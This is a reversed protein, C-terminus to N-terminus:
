IRASIRPFGGPAAVVKRSGGNMGNVAGGRAMADQAPNVWRGFFAPPSQPSVNGDIRMRRNVDSVPAKAHARGSANNVAETGSHMQTADASITRGVPSPPGDSLALRAMRLPTEATATADSTCSSCCNTRIGKAKEKLVVSTTVLNLAWNPLRGVGLCQCLEDCFHLCNREFSDYQDGVWDRKILEWILDLVRDESMKTEGMHIQELYTHRFNSKPLDSVVGAQDEFSWETGHVEVGCHFAGTGFHRLVHNACRVIPTTTLSYVHLIV